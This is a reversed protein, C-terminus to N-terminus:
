GHRRVSMAAPWTLHAVAVALLVVSAGGVLATSSRDFWFPASTTLVPRTIVTRRLLTWVILQVAAVAILTAAADSSSRRRRCMISSGVAALLATLPLAWATIPPGTQAPLSRTQWAGVTLALLSVVIAAFAMAPVPGRDPARRVASAAVLAVVVAAGIALLASPWRRPPAVWVSVVRVDVAVGDVVMTVVGDSVQDGPSLGLPPQSAMWHTRHDHWAWRHGDGVRRWEPPADADAEPPVASAAYRDDNLFRAPSRQNEEVGGGALVRLYPEGAYGEVIVEVGPEAVLELFSDGGVVRVEITDTAPTVSVVESRYDTPTPPDAAATGAGLGAITVATGVCAGRWVLRVHARACLDFV